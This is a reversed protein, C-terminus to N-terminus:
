SDRYVFDRDSEKPLLPLEASRKLWRRPEIRGLQADTLGFLLRTTHPHQATRAQTLEHSRFVRTDFAKSQMERKCRKQSSEQGHSSLEDM